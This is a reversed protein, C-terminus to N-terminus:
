QRVLWNKRTWTLSVVLRKQNRQLVKWIFFTFIYFHELAVTTALIITMISM